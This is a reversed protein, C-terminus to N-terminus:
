FYDTYAQRAKDLQILGPFETYVILTLNKETPKEFELNIGLEGQIVPNIHDIGDPCRDQSLDYVYINYWKRFEEYTIDVANASDSLESFLSHYGRTHLSPTGDVDSYSSDISNTFSTGNIFVGTSKINHHNFVLGSHLHSGNYWDHPVLGYLIRCPLKGNVVNNLMKSKVGAGITYSKVDVRVIPYKAASNQLQREIQMHQHSTLKVRRVNLYIEEVSVYFKEEISKAAAASKIFFANNNRFLRVKLDCGSLLLRPQNFFDAHIRGYGEFIKKNFKSYKTMVDNREIESYFGECKLKSKKEEASYSLLNEFFARYPYHGTSSSVKTENIFIEVDNFLTHLANNEPYVNLETSPDTGDQNKICIRLYLYVDSPDVFYESSSSINFDIPATDNSVATLPNVRCFVNSEISTQTGPITFLDLESKSCAHAEVM